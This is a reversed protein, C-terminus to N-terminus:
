PFLQFMCLLVVEFVLISIALRVAHFAEMSGMTPAAERTIKLSGWTLIIVSRALFLKEVQNGGGFQSLDLEDRRIQGLFAQLMLFPELTGKVIGQFNKLVGRLNEECGTKHTCSHRCPRQSKQSFKSQLAVACTVTGVVTNRAITSTCSYELQRVPMRTSAFNGVLLVQPRAM